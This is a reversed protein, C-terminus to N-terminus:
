ATVALVFLGVVFMVAVAAGLVGVWLAARDATSSFVIPVAIVPREPAVAPRHPALGLTMERRSM